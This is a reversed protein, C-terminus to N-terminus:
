ALWSIGILRGIKSTSAADSTPISVSIGAGVPTDVAYNLNSPKTVPAEKYIPDGLEAVTADKSLIEDAVPDVVMIKVKNPDQVIQSVTLTHTATYAYNGNIEVIRDGDRLGAYFAPSDADVGSIYNGAKEKGAQLQFGYGTDPWKYM